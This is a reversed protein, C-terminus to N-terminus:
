TQLYKSLYDLASIYALLVSIWLLVDGLSLDLALTVLTTFEFFTKAKGLSSASMIYGKEVALSRLFSISLERVMLLVFPVPHVKQLYVFVSITSLVFVKDMLPDLLAGLRASANTKRAFSGDFWDSLAGLIILLLSFFTKGELLTYVLPIVLFGRLLTLYLPLNAM